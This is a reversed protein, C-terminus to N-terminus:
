DHNKDEQYVAALSTLRGRLNLAKRHLRTTELLLLFVALGYSSWVYFGHGGMKIFDAFGSWM